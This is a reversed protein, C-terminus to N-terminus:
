VERNTPLTLHTYPGAQLWRLSGTPAPRGHVPSRKQCWGRRGADTAPPRDTARARTRDPPGAHSRTSRRSRAHRETQNPARAHPARAGAIWRPRCRCGPSSRGPGGGVAPAVHRTWRGCGPSPRAPTAPRRAPQPPRAAPTRSGRERAGTPIKQNGAPSPRERRM